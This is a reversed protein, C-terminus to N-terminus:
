LRKVVEVDANNLSNISFIKGKGCLKDNDWIGEMIIGDATTHKGSGNRMITDDIM